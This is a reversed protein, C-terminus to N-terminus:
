AESVEGVIVAGVDGQSISVAHALRKKVEASLTKYGLDDSDLAAVEYDRTTSSYPVTGKQGVTQKEYKVIVTYTKTVSM